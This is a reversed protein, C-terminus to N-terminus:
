EEVAGTLDPDVGVRRSGCITTHGGRSRAVWTNTTRMWVVLLVSYTTRRGWGGDDVTEEGYKEGKAEELQLWSGGAHLQFASADRDPGDRGHLLLYCYYWYQEDQITAVAMLNGADDWVLM